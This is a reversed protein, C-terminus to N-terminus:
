TRILLAARASAGAVRAANPEDVEAVWRRAADDTKGFRVHRRVLRRRREDDAVDCYWVEDLLDRVSAWPEVDDLLYNGETIVVSTGPLVAISGAIPQEVTREFDPAYVVNDLEVALRRLLAVYGFADFTDIAGKRDRRGLRDLEVDALHFGDMPVSAVPTGRSQLAALLAQTVTSKGSGPPGAIGLLVRKRGDLGDLRTLMRAVDSAEACLQGVQADTEPM